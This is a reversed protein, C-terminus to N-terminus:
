LYLQVGLLFLFFDVEVRWDGFAIVESAVWESDTARRDVIEVM